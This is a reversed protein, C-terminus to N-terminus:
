SVATSLIGTDIIYVKAGAGQTSDFFYNTLPNGGQTQSVLKLWDPSNPLFLYTPERPQIRNPSQAVGYGSDDLDDDLEVTEIFPLLKIGQAQVTTLNTV